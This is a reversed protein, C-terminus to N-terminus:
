NKQPPPLLPFNLVTRRGLRPEAAPLPESIGTSAVFLYDFRGERATRRAVQRAHLRLFYFYGDGNELRAYHGLRRLEANIAKQTLRMIILKGSLLYRLYAALAIALM